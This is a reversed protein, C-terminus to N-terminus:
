KDLTNYDPPPMPPAFPSTISRRNNTSKQTRCEYIREYLRPDKNSVTWSTKENELSKRWDNTIAESVIAIAILFCSSLLACRLIQTGLERHKVRTQEKGRQSNSYQQYATEFEAQQQRRQQEKRRNEAERKRRAEDDARKKDQNRKEAEENKANGSQSSSTHSHSASSRSRNQWDRWHQKLKDKANNIKKLEEEALAKHHPNSVRDPHWFIVLTRYRQEVQDWTADPPLGLINLYPTLDIM